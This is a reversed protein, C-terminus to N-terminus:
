QHMRRVAAARFVESETKPMPYQQPDLKLLSAVPRMAVSCGVGCIDTEDSENPEKVTEYQFCHRCEFIRKAKISMGAPDPLLTM